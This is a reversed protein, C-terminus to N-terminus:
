MECKRPGQFDQGGNSITLGTRQGEEQRRYSHVLWDGELQGVYFM